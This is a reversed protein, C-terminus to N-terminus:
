DYFLDRKKCGGDDLWKFIPGTLPLSTM